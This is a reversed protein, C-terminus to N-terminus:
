SIRRRAAIQRRRDEFLEELHFSDMTRTVPKPPEPASPTRSILKSAQVVSATYRYADAAHSSWDHKPKQSISKKEEDYEYHYNRLASVGETCNPHFRVGQQLLWRGAYIGDNIPMKPCVNVMGPWERMTQNLCSVGSALTVQSSDHPLWHKIYKYPKRNVVDFYHRLPQGHNQYFDIFDVGGDKVRWFWIATNDTSGLDWTTFVEDHRPHFYAL